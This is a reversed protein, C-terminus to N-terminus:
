LHMTTRAAGTINLIATELLSPSSLENMEERRAVLSWGSPKFVQEYFSQWDNQAIDEIGVAVSDNTRFGFATTSNRYSSFLEPMFMHINQSSNVWSDFQSLTDFFEVNEDENSLQRKFVKVHQLYDNAFFEDVPFFANLVQKAAALSSGAEDREVVPAAVAYQLLLLLAVFVRVVLIM